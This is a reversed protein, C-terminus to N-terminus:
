ARSADTFAVYSGSLRNWRFWFMGGCCQGRTSPVALNMDRITSTTRKTGRSGGPVPTRGGEYCPLM